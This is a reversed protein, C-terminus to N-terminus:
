VRTSLKFYIKGVSYFVILENLTACYKVRDGFKEFCTKAIIYLVNGLHGLTAHAISRSPLALSKGPLRPFHRLM